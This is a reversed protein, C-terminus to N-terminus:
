MIASRPKFAIRPRPMFSALWMMRARLQIELGERANVSHMPIVRGARFKGSIASYSWLVKSIKQEAPGSAKCTLLKAAQHRNKPPLVQRFDMSFTSNLLTDNHHKEYCILVHSVPKIETVFTSIIHKYHTKVKWASTGTSKQLQALTWRSM